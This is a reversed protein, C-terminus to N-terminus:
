IQLADFFTCFREHDIAFSDSPVGFLFTQELELFKRRPLPFVDLYFVDFDFNVEKSEIQEVQISLHAIEARRWGSDVTSQSV